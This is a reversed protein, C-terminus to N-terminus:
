QYDARRRRNDLVRRTLLMLGSLTIIDFIVKGVVDIKPWAAMTVYPVAMCALTAGIAASLRHVNGWGPRSSFWVFLAFAASAWAIGAVIAIWFPQVPQPAFNEAILVFWLAGIVFAILGVLWVPPTGKGDGSRPQGFGRVLYALIVLVAILTFGAVIM